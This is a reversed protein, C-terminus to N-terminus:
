IINGDDVYKQFFLRQYRSFSTIENTGPDVEPPPDDYDDTSGSGFIKLYLDNFFEGIVELLNHKDWYEGIYDFHKLIDADMQHYMNIYDDENGTHNTLILLSNFTYLYGSYRIFADDSNLCIYAALLQADNERMVGKSHALEHALTFPYEGNTMFADYNVEGTLGVYVGTIQFQVYLFSTLMPKPKTTFSSYYPNDLKEYEKTLNNCLEDVSYPFEVEGTEKYTLQSSCYNFDDLFYKVIKNFNSKDVNDEYLSIPIPLRYYALSTSAVYLTTMGLVLISLLLGRNLASKLRKKFLDIFL